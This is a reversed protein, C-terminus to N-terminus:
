VDVIKLINAHDLGAIKKLNASFNASESIPYITKNIIQDYSFLILFYVVKKFTKPVQLEFHTQNKKDLVILNHYYPSNKLISILEFCSTFLAIDEGLEITDSALM